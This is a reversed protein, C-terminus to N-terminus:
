LKKPTEQGLLYCPLLSQTPNNPVHELGRVNPMKIGLGQGKSLLSKILLPPCRSAQGQESQNRPAQSYKHVVRLLFGLGQAFSLSVGSGKREPDGM